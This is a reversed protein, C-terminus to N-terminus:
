LWQKYRWFHAGIKQEIQFSMVHLSKAPGQDNGSSKKKVSTNENWLHESQLPYIAPACSYATGPGATCTLYMSFTRLGDLDLAQLNRM